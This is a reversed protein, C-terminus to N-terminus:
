FFSNNGKALARRAQLNLCFAWLESMYLISFSYVLMLSQVLVLVDLVLGHRQYREYLPAIDGHNRDCLSGRKRDSHGSYHAIVAIRIL